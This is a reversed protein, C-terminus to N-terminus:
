MYLTHFIPDLYTSLFHLGCKCSMTVNFWSCTFHYLWLHTQLITTIILWFWLDNWLLFFSFVEDHTTTEDPDSIQRRTIYNEARQRASNQRRTDANGDSNLRSVFLSQGDRGCCRTPRTGSIHHWRRTKVTVDAAEVTHNQERPPCLLNKGPQGSAGGLWAASCTNAWEAHPRVHGSIGFPGM